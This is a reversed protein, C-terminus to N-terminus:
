YYKKLKYKKINLVNNMVRNQIGIELPINNIELMWLTIM